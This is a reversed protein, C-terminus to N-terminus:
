CMMCSFDWGCAKGRGQVGARDVGDNWDGAGILPLGHEGMRALSYAIARRCHDYLDGIERSARPAIFIDSSGKPVAPGELYPIKEDLVFSRRDGRSLACRCLAALSASRARTRQGVGTRGDPAAHWWKLVDGEPFQQGAHLAIQRRALTPDLLLFPLVDQLQDRLWHRRRAPEAREDWLRSALVQYPLWYNVLRDFAPDNTEIRVV